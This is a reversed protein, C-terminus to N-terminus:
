FFSWKKYEYYTLNRRKWQPWVTTPDTDGEEKALCDQLAAWLDSISADEM